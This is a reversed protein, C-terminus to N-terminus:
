GKIENLHPIIKSEKKREPPYLVARGLAHRSHHSNLGEKATYRYYNQGGAAEIRPSLHCGREPQHLSEGTEASEM